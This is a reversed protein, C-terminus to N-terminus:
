AARENSDSDSGDEEEDEEDEDEMEESSFPVGDCRWLGEEVAAFSTRSPLDAHLLAGGVPIDLKPM